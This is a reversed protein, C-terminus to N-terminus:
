PALAQEWEGVLVALRTGAAPRAAGLGAVLRPEDWWISPSVAVYNRFARADRALVDLAFFGGLSHGFLTQRAPDVPCLRAVLPKLEHEIFALFADRGGTARAGGEVGPGATFDFTRRERDYSDTAPYGIGVLVAPVIGTARSRVSGRRLTEAFTAFGANADLLYIAPFGAPPPPADPVALFIRWPPGGARPALDFMRAGPLTVDSLAPLPPDFPTDPPANM